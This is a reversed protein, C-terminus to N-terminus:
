QQGFRGSRQRSDRRVTTGRKEDARLAAERVVFLRKGNSRSEDRRSEAGADQSRLGGSDRCQRCQLHKAAVEGRARASTM